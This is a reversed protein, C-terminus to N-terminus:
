EKAPAPEITGRVKSNLKLSKTANDLTLGEAHIIGRSEQITVAKDTQAKDQKPIVHLYETALSIAGAREEGDGEAERRARVSGHFYANERDGTVVARNAEVSFRPKDPDSMVFRPTDFEVTNDDPYHRAREAALTQV